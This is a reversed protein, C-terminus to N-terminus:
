MGVTNLGEKVVVIGDKVENVIGFDDLIWKPLRYNEVEVNRKIENKM